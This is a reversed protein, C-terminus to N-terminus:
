TSGGLAGRLPDAGALLHADGVYGLVTSLARHGTVSAIEQASAGSLSASWVFGVRGSHGSLGDLGAELGREAFVGGVARDSLSAGIRGGKNVSRFLAGESVGAASLVDLWARVAAVPCLGGRGARVGIRRGAGAQDTKSRALFVSLGGDRIEVDVVRLASVESRRLAAGFALLLIARDRIGRVDNPLADVVARLRDVTLPKAQKRREGARAAEVGLGRRARRVLEDDAPSPLGASRFGSVVAAIRAKVTSVKLGESRLAGIWVLLLRSGHERSLAESGQSSCFAEWQDWAAAYSRETNSSTGDVVLRRAREAAERTGESLM